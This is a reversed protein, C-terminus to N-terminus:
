WSGGKLRKTYHMQKMKENNSKSPQHKEEKIVEKKINGINTSFHM